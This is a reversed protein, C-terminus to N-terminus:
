PLTSDVQLQITEGTPNNSADVVTFAGGHDRLHRVVGQAIAVFLRRRQRTEELNNDPLKPFGDNVLLNNLADEISSALSNAYQDPSGGPM